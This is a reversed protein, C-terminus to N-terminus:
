LSPRATDCSISASRQLRFDRTRNGITDNSNKMSAIRRAASNLRIYFHTGNTDGPPLPSRHTPSVVKGGEHTSQRSIQSNWDSGEPGICPDSKIHQLTLPLYQAHRLKVHMGSNEQLPQLGGRLTMTLIVTSPKLISIPGKRTGLLVTVWTVALQSGKNRDM